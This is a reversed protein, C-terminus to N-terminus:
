QHKEKSATKTTSGVFLTLRNRHITDDVPKTREMLCEKKFTQFQQQGVKQAKKFADDASHDPIEKGGLVLIDKSEEEFPNGLEEMINVLSCVDKMFAAVELGAVMWQRVANPNDTLGVMGGDSKICAYNQEHAQDIPIASFVRKTKQIM